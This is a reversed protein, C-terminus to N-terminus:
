QKHIWIFSPHDLLAVIPYAEISTQESLLRQMLDFKKKGTTLLVLHKAASLYHLSMTLRDRVAHVDTQTHLVKSDTDYTQPQNPFISAVHGDAGMGLLACDLQDPLKKAYAALADDIPLGTDFPVFVDNEEELAVHARFMHANADAHDLSVYREDVQFIQVGSIWKQDAFLEEYVPYPTSGGSIAISGSSLRKRIHDIATDVWDQKSDHLSISIM